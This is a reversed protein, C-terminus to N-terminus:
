SIVSMAQTLLPLSVVDSSARRVDERETLRLAQVDLAGAALSCGRRRGVGEMSLEAECCLAGEAPTSLGGSMTQGALVRAWTIQGGVQELDVLKTLSQRHSVM